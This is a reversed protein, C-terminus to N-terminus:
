AGLTSAGPALKMGRVRRAMRRIPDYDASTAAIVGKRPVPIPWDNRAAVAANLAALLDPLREAYRPACIYPLAPM